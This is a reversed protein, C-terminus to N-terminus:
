QQEKILSTDNKELEKDNTKLPTIILDKPKTKKPSVRSINEQAM